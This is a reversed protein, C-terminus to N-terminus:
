CLFSFSSSYELHVFLLLSLNANNEQWTVLTKSEILLSSFNHILNRTLWPVVNVRKSSFTPVLSLKWHETKILAENKLFGHFQLAATIWKGVIHYLSCPWCLVMCAMICPCPSRLAASVIYIKSTPTCASCDICSLYTVFLYVHLQKAIGLSHYSACYM